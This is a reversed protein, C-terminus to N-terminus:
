SNRHPSQDAGGCVTTVLAHSGTFRHCESFKETRLRNDDVATM